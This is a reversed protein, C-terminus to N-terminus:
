LVSYPYSANNIEIQKLVDSFNVLGLMAEGECKFIQSLTVNSEGVCNKILNNYSTFIKNRMPSTLSPLPPVVIIYNTFVGGMRKARYYHSLFGEREFGYTKCEIFYLDENKTYITIDFQSNSNIDDKDKEVADFIVEYVIDKHKQAWETVIKLCFYEFYKSHNTLKSKTNIFINSILNKSHEVKGEISIPSTLGLTTLQEIATDSLNIFRTEFSYHKKDFFENKLMNALEFYDGKELKKDVHFSEINFDENLKFNTYLKNGNRDTKNNIENIISQIISRRYDKDIKKGDSKLRNFLDEASISMLDYIEDTSTAEFLFDKLEEFQYLDPLEEILGILDSDAKGNSYYSHLLEVNNKSFCSFVERASYNIELDYSTENVSVNNLYETEIIKGSQKNPYLLYISNHKYITSLSLSALAFTKLGGGFNFYIKTAPNIDYIRDFEDQIKKSVIYVSDGKDFRYKTENVDFANPLLAALNPTWAHLAEQTSIIFSYITGKGNKAIQSRLYDIPYLNIVNQETSICIYLIDNEGLSIKGM